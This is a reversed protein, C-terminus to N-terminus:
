EYEALYHLWFNASILLKCWQILAATFAFWSACLAKFTGDFAGGYMFRILSGPDTSTRSNDQSYAKYQLTYGWGQQMAHGHVPCWIELGHLVTPGGTVGHFMILMVCWAATYFAHRSILILFHHMWPPGCRRSCPKWPSMLCEATAGHEVDISYDASWQDTWTGWLSETISHSQMYKLLFTFNIYIISTTTTYEPFIEYRTICKGARKRSANMKKERWCSNTNTNLRISSHVIPCKALYQFGM